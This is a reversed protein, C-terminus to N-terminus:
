QGSNDGPLSDYKVALLSFLIYGIMSVFVFSLSQTRTGGLFHWLLGYIAPASGITALVIPMYRSKPASGAEQRNTQAKMAIHDMYKMFALEVVSVMLLLSYFLGSPPHAAKTPIYLILLTFLALDFLYLIRGILVPSIKQQM